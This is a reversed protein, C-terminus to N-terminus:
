EIELTNDIFQKVDKRLKVLSPKHLYMMHGAEYFSYHINDQLSKPMPLNKLEYVGEFYPTALDYYGATLLVQLKPNKKMSNALDPMVNLTGSSGGFGGRSMNWNTRGYVSPRYSKTGGYNLENRMYENLLSVYASSIADSQPDGFSSQALPNMIPGTYRTDLRGTSLEDNRQLEQRFEGGDLKLDAKKLYDVSIGIYQHLKNAVENYSAEDLMAGKNLAVAYDTLAFEEVESLFAELDNPKNPLKDHYWATAAYTPLALIYPNNNGPDRSAGDVSNGYSLIQSLLIIGNVDISKGQLVSALVASRLTGYSEGFLFKPSNWRKNETIFLEIFKAFANADETVGYFNREKGELVRGFGTGPMDVFVLDTVDLISNENNILNYPAGGMHVPGSNETEVWKPGVSGMHLWLTASGPGGNYLFTIPRKTMDKVDDKFYATFSMTAHVDKENDAYIPLTGTLAKYNIKKGDITVSGSTEQNESDYSLSSKSDNKNQSSNGDSGPWSQATVQPIAIFLM